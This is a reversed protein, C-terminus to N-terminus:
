HTPYSAGCAQCKIFFVGKKKSLTTDPKKCEKCIVYKKAYIQIKENISSSSLKRALILQNKRREGATAMEKLMYKLFEKHDRGLYNAIQFFNSLVTKNGQLHGRIKPIEFREDTKKVSDPLENIARELMEEYKM